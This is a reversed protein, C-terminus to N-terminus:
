LQGSLRNMKEAKNLNVYNRNSHRTNTSREMQLIQDAM